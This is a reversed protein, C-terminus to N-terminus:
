IDDEKKGCYPCEDLNAHYRYGCYPCIISDKCPIDCTYCNEDCEYHEERCTAGWYSLADYEKWRM